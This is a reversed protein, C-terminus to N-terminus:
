FDRTIPHHDIEVAFTWAITKGLVLAVARRFVLFGQTTESGRDMVPARELGDADEVFRCRAIEALGRPRRGYILDTLWKGLVRNVGSDRQNMLIRDLTNRQTRPHEMPNSDRGSRFGSYSVTSTPSQRM